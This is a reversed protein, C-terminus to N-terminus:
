KICTYKESHNEWEDGPEADYIFEYLSDGFYSEVDNFNLQIIGIYTLTITGVRGSKDSLLFKKMDSKTFIADICEKSFDTEKEYMQKAYRIFDENDYMFDWKKAEKPNLAVLFAEQLFELNNLAKELEKETYEATGLPRQIKITKM